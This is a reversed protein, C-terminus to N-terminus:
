VIYLSPIWSKQITSTDYIFFFQMIFIKHNKMNHFSEIIKKNEICPSTDKEIYVVLCDNLRDDRM